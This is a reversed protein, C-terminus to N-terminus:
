QRVLWLPDTGEPIRRWAVEGAEEFRWIGSSSSFVLEGSEMRWSAPNFKTVSADCGPKMQLAFGDAVAERSLTVVCIPTDSGRSVAWDGFVQEATPVVRVSALSQMFYRGEGPRVGEFIGTELEDLDLVSRGKGDLLHLGDMGITWATVDKTLAFVDGCAKDFELKFGGPVPESGFTIMCIKDRDANSIEWTGIMAKAADSPQATQAFANGAFALFVVLVIPHLDRM